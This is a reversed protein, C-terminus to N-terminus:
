NCEKDCAIVIAKSVESHKAASFCWAAAIEALQGPIGQHIRRNQAFDPFYMIDHVKEPEADDVVRSDLVM